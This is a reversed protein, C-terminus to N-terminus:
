ALLFIEFHPYRNTAGSCNSKLLGNSLVLTRVNGKRHHFCHEIGISAIGTALWDCMYLKLSWNLYIHVTQVEREQFTHFSVPFHLIQGHILIESLYTWYVQAWKVIGDLIRLLNIHTSHIFRKVSAVHSNLRSPVWENKSVLTVKNRINREYKRHINGVITYLILADM